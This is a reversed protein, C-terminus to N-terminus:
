NKCIHSLMCVECKKEFGDYDGFCGMPTDKKMKTSTFFIATLLNKPLGMLKKYLVKEQDSLGQPLDKKFKHSSVGDGVKIYGDSDKFFFSAFDKGIQVKIEEGDGDEEEEFSIEMEEVEETIEEETIEEGEDENIEEVVPTPTESIEEEVPTPTSTKVPTPTSTKVPTSVSKKYIPQHAENLSLWGWRPTFIKGQKKLEHAIYTFQLVYVERGKPYKKNPPTRGWDSVTAGLDNLIKEKIDTGHAEGGMAELTPIIQSRFIQRADTRSM